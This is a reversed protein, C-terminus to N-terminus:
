GSGAQGSSYATPAITVTRNSGSGGFVLNALPVLNTDTSAGFISLSGAPTEPDGVTFELPGTSSNAEITQDPISSLFPPRNTPVFLNFSRLGAMPSTPPPSAPPPVVANWLLSLGRPVTPNALVQPWNAASGGQNDWARMQLTMLSGVPEPLMVNVPVIFGAQAGTSRFVTPSSLPALASEATGAPGAFLQAAYGAGLLLAGGYTQTGAPYGATTNGTKRITPDAPEPGYVPARVLSTVNNNFANTM